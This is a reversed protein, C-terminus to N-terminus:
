IICIHRCIEDVEKWSFDDVQLQGSKMEVMEEVMKIKWEDGNPVDIYPRQNVDILNIQHVDNEFLLKRINRGMTSRCDNEIERLVQRLVEKKSSTIKGIFNIFRKKLFKIHRTRTLPALFYRQTSRPLDLM